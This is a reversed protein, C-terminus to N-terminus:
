VILYVDVQHGDLAATPKIYNAALTTTSFSSGSAVTTAVKNNLIKIVTDHDLKYPIGFADALGVSVTDAEGTKVPLTIKTVTAFAKTGAVTTAGNLAITDTLAAGAFDTGTIVVNKGTLGSVGTISLVRPVKPQTIGTTIDQAEATLATAALVNAAGPATADAAAIQYHAIFDWDLTVGDVNTKIHQGIFPDYPALSM